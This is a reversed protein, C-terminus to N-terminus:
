AGGFRGLSGRLVSIYGEVTKLRSEARAYLSAAAIAAAAHAALLEFMEMDARDFHGQKQALLSFIVIMGVLQNDISLPICALPDDPNGKGQENIYITHTRASDGIRGSELSIATIPGGLVGESAIMRLTNSAHDALYIAFDHAGVLNVVIEVATRLVVDHQLSAHLRLSAIYLNALRNNLEEVEYYRRNFEDNEGSVRGQRDEIREIQRQLSKRTQVLKRMDDPTALGDIEGQLRAEKESAAQIAEKLRANEKMLDDTLERAESMAHLFLNPKKSKLDDLAMGGGDYGPGRKGRRRRGLTGM